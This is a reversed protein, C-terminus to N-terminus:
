YDQVNLKGHPFSLIIYKSKIGKQRFLKPIKGFPNDFNLYLDTIGDKDFDNVVLQVAPTKGLENLLKPELVYQLDILLSSFERTLKDASLVIRPYYYAHAGGNGVLYLSDSQGDGDFDWKNSYNYSTNVSRTEPNYIRTIYPEDGEGASDVQSLANQAILLGPILILLKM